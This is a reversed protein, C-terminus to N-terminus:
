AASKSRIIQALAHMKRQLDALSGDNIVEYDCPLSHLEYRSNPLPPQPAVIKIWISDCNEPSCSEIYALAERRRRVGVVIKSFVSCVDMLFTPAFEAIQDGLTSLAERCDEKFNSFMRACAAASEPRGFSEATLQALIQTVLRGTEAYDCGLAEALYQAATSKGCRDAGIIFITM